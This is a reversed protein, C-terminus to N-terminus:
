QSDQSNILAIDRRYYCGEFSIRSINKYVKERAENLDNGTAVVTLVRGGNTLVEGNDGMKTGAHFVMIEDDVDDLGYIPFGTTYKGPYGGSAMVVGVCAKDSSEVTIDDLNGNIVSEVIEVLDTKLRPLVVQTEPDGFRANFEIVRPGEEDIMLGGYLIGKYPRKEKDMARIAPRMIKKMVDDGLENTYRWPPSFSGM